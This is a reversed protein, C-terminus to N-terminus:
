AVVWAELSSGARVYETTVTDVMDIQLTAATGGVTIVGEIIVLGNVANGGTNMAVALINTTVASVGGSAYYNGVGSGAIGLAHARVLAAGAALAHIQFNLGNAANIQLSVALHAKFAYNTNAALPLTLGTSQTGNISQTDSALRMVQAATIQIWASNGVNREYLQGATFGSGTVTCFAQMGPYTTAAAINAGTDVLLTKQNLKTSLVPGENTGFVSL